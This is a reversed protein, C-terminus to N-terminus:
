ADNGEEQGLYAEIVARNEQIEKPTGEAIKRGYNLAVIRESLGMIVKMNHEVIVITLGHNHLLNVLNMMELSEQENMGTAPEDLLLIRPKAALAMAIGLRRKYGHPLNGAIENKISILGTFELIESALRLSRRDERRVKVPNFVQSWFGAQYQLEMSIMLNDLVSRQNYLASQQFTRVVGKKAVLDPRLGSINKGDLFVKGKSPKYTGCIVNYITTKGAGNPGIVGLLEAENIELDLDSIAALGGFHKTLGKIELISM